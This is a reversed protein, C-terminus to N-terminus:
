IVPTRSMLVPRLAPTQTGDSAQSNRLIKLRVKDHPTRSSIGRRSDYSLARLPTRVRALCEVAEDKEAHSFVAADLGIFPQELQALPGVDIGAEHAVQAAFGVLFVVRALKMKLFLCPDGLRGVSDSGIESDIVFHDFRDQLAETKFESRRVVEPNEGDLDQACNIFPEQALDDPQGFAMLGLNFFFRLHSLCASDIVRRGIYHIIDNLIRDPPLNFALAWGLKRASLTRRGKPDKVHGASAAGEKQARILTQEIM